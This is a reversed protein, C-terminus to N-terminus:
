TDEDGSVSWGVREGNFGGGLLIIPGNYHVTITIPFPLLALRTAASSASLRAGELWCCRLLPWRADGDVPPLRRPVPKRHAGAGGRERERQKPTLQATTSCDAVITCM